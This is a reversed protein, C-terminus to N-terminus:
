EGDDVDDQDDQDTQVEREKDSPVLAGDVDLDLNRPAAARSPGPIATEEDGSETNLARRPTAKVGRGGTRKKQVSQVPSGENSFGEGIGVIGLM